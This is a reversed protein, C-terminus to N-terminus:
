KLYTAVLRVEKKGANMVESTEQDRWAASGAKANREITKGDSTTIKFHADTFYYVVRPSRAEMKNVAGPKFRVEVVKVKENELLIKTVAEPRTKDAAVARGATSLVFVMAIAIAVPRYM